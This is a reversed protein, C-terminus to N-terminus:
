ADEAGRGGRGGARLVKLGAEVAMPNAASVMGTSGAPSKAVAAPLPAGFCVVIALTLPAFKSVLKM